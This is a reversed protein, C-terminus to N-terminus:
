IPLSTVERPLGAEFIRSPKDFLSMALWLNRVTAPSSAAAAVFFHCAFTLAVPPPCSSTLLSQPAFLSNIEENFLRSFAAGDIPEEALAGPSKFRSRKVIRSLIRLIAALFSTQLSPPTSLFYVATAIPEIAPLAIPIDLLNLLLSILTVPDNNPDNLAAPVCIAVNKLFKSACVVSDIQVETHSITPLAMRSDRSLLARSVPLVINRLTDAYIASDLNSSEAFLDNLSSILTFPSKDM